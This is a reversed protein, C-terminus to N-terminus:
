ETLMTPYIDRKKYFLMYAMPTVVSGTGSVHTDNYNYWKGDGNKCFSFYHGGMPGGTHNVVAYLDYVSRHSDNGAKIYEHLDLGELPFDIPTDIKHAGSATFGFRKLCIVLHIPSKWITLRKYAKQKEKCVGECFWKEDGKLVEAKIHQKLCDDLTKAGEPIELTINFFPDFRLASDTCVSCETVGLYQGAFCDVIYSYSKKYHASFEEISKIQLKDIETTPEGTPRIRAEFSCSEHLLEVLRMYFENADQQNFGLYCDKFSGLTVKFVGPDVISNSSWMTKILKVYERLLRVEKKKVNRDEYFRDSLIYLSLVSTNSMAQLVANMFCTNGKNVLGTLGKGVFSVISSKKFDM